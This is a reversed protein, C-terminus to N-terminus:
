GRFITYAPADRRAACPAVSPHERAIAGTTSRELHKGAMSKPVIADLSRRSSGVTFM